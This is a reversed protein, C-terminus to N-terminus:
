KVQRIIGVLSFVSVPLLLISSDNRALPHQAMLVIEMNSRSKEVFEGKLYKKIFKM